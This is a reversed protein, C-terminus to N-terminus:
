EFLTKLFDVWITESKVSTEVNTHNQSDFNRAGAFANEFLKDLISRMGKEDAKLNGNIFDTLAGKVMETAKDKAISGVKGGGIELPEAVVDVLTGVLAERAAQDEGNDKVARKYGAAVSGLVDGLIKAYRENDPNKRINGADLMDARIDGMLKSVTAVFAGKPDADAFLSERFFLSLAQGTSDFPSDAAGTNNFLKDTLGRPDAMFLTKLNNVLPKRNDDGTHVDSLVSAADRFVRTRFDAYQNGKFDAAMGVVRELGEAKMLTWDSHYSDGLPPESFGNQFLKTVEEPSWLANIRNGNADVRDALYDKVLQPDASFVEGAMRAAFGKEYDDNGLAATKVGDLFGRRVADSAAPQSFILAASIETNQSAARLGVERQFTSPTYSLSQAISSFANRAASEDPFDQHNDNHIANVTTGILHATLEPGLNQYMERMFVPDNQRLAVTKQFDLSRFREWEATFYNNQNKLRAAVEAGSRADEARGQPQIETSPIARYLRSVDAYEEDHVSGKLLHDQMRQLLRGGDATKGIAFLQEDSLNETVGRSFNDSKETTELRDLIQNGVANMGNRDYSLSAVESGMALAQDDSLKDPAGYKAFLENVKAPADVPKPPPADFFLARRIEGWFNNEQIKGNANNETPQTKTEVKPEPPKPPQYDSRYSRNFRIEDDLM